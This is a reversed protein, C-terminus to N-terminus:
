KNSLNYLWLLSEPFMEQIEEPLCTSWQAYRSFVNESHDHSVTTSDSHRTAKDDWSESQVEGVSNQSLEECHTVETLRARVGVGRRGGLCLWM